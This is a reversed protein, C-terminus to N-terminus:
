ILDKANRYLLHPLSAALGASCSRVSIMMSVEGNLLASAAIQVSRGSQVKGGAAAFNSLKVSRQGTRYAPLFFHSSSHEVHKVKVLTGELCEFLM